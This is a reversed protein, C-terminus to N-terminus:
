KKWGNVFGGKPKFPLQNNKVIPKAEQAEPEDFLTSQRLKAELADWSGSNMLDIKTARSAHLAYVECDLVENRVGTKKQWVRVVSGNQTRRPAKVESLLQLYYDPSVNKYVHIRGPGDGDLSIRGKEGILLDKAKSVGVNFIQVGYKAAKTNNANSNLVQGPRSFIVKDPSGHGKIAMVHAIGRGQRSRVYKYVAESTQGDSSDISVAAVRLNFGLEHPYNAFLVKDLEKWVPDEILLTNGYLKDYYVLWSEEGRGWARIIVELRDHQVDVGVTLILGGAPVTGPEYDLARDQLSDPEPTDGTFEYAIGMSSNTFAVLSGIEGKEFEHQATLWKEMLIHFRSGPFPSYLENLYFGAIGRFPATAQWRGLKVNNNKIDDDWAVGCHPCVYYATEPKKNGFVPHKQHEDDLCLLNNFNLEHEQGCENCPIMGVRKDSLDMEAEIASLGSITPTGGIIIKKRPLEYTKTREKALKISDGQSKLNANCDDPEEIAVRPTPLSKVSAPSNSGVLKLFGGPFRKFLQRQQAKRSRLDIKESLRKTAEVMPEFKEAMYDKAAGEKPFLVLIPSPDVDVWAGLANGLVGSTWAVQASKQCVVEEVTPDDLADLPGNPWNLYPTVEIRYKGPKAAELTSLWRYKIAWEKIPMKEPMKWSSCAARFVRSLSKQLNKKLISSTLM